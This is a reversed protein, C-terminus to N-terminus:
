ININENNPSLEKNSEHTEFHILTNDAAIDNILLDLDDDNLVRESNHEMLSNTMNMNYVSKKKGEDKMM